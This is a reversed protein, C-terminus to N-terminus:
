KSVHLAGEQLPLPMWLVKRVGLMRLVENSCLFCFLFFLFFVGSSQITVVVIANGFEARSIARMSHAWFYPSCMCYGMESALTEFLAIKSPSVKCKRRVLESALFLQQMDLWADHCVGDLFVFSM